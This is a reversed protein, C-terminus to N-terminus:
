NIKEWSVKVKAYRTAEYYEVKVEHSGATINRERNFIMERNNDAWSQLFNENDFYVRIADDFVTRFEYNGDLFNCNATYRISFRDFMTLQEPGGTGWDFDITKVSSTAFPSGFLSKNDFYEALWVCTSSATTDAVAPSTTATEGALNDATSTAIINDPTSTAVAGTEPAVAEVPKQVESNDVIIIPSSKEDVIILALNSDTIGLGLNRMISFADAPRGLYHMKLDLPNVYYAKGLDEVKLLIRGSLRAPAITKFSNFDKNAIGLSQERMIKFADAPRGLYFRKQSDPNVYWAEGHSQVQLLIRGTLRSPLSEAQALNLPLLLFLFLLLILIKRM